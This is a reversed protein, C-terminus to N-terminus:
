TWDTGRLPRYLDLDARGALSAYIAVIAKLGASFDVEDNGTGHDGLQFFYDIAADFSYRIGAPRSGTALIVAEFQEREGGSLCLLFDPPLADEARESAEAEDSDDGDVAVLDIEVVKAPCRLRGTLLDTQVLPQWVQDIWEGVQTAAAKLTAEGVQAQLASRALPSVSTTPMMPIPDDRLPEWAAAVREAEFITVDYGLYRGYLAAEIGLPGAGVVAIVGPPDLTARDLIEDNTQENMNM